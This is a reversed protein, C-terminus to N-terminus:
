RGEPDSPRSQGGAEQGDYEGHKWPEIMWETRRLLGHLTTVERPTLMTRGFIRRMMTMTNARKYEFHDVLDLFRDIHDYFADMEQRSALNYDGRPLNSLEYCVVGVAHSINLIPYDASTPITCIVDCRRVEDNGLGRDERGFLISIRGNVPSLMERLEAPTYYPMRMAHSVTKSLGGTTAVLLNSETIVDDLSSVIRAGELVDRAHSARATAEVGWVPPNVMTLRTFGFNKMVRAAFGINGEYLPEVLVIEIEAM